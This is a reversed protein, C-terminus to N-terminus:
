VEHSGWGCQALPQRWGLVFGSSAVMPACIWSVSQDRLAALTARMNCCFVGGCALEASRPYPSTAASKEAQFRLARRPKENLVNKFCWVVRQPGPCFFQKRFGLCVGVLTRSHSDSPSTSVPEGESNANSDGSPM